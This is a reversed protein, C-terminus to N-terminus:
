ITGMGQSFENLAPQGDVRGWLHLAYEHLNVHYRSPAFVQYAWSGNFAASHLMRLEDYSPMRDPHSISAHLWEGDDYDAASVIIVTNPTFPPASDKRVFVFGDPGYPEPVSWEKRGLRRRIALADVSM